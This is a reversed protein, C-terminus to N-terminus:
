VSCSLTVPDLEAHGQDVDIMVKQSRDTLCNHLWNLVIGDVKFRFKLRNLLLSHNNINFTASLDMLVLCVVKRNDIANLFDTKVKLM